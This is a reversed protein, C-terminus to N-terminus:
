GSGGQLSAAIRSRSIGFADRVQRQNLYFVAVVNLLMSVAVLEGRAWWIYIQIALAAGTVLMTATWGMRRMQLLAVAILLYAATLGAFLLIFASDASGELAGTRLGARELLDLLDRGSGPSLLVFATALGYFLANFLQIGALIVVPFPRRRAPMDPSAGPTSTAVAAASPRRSEDGSAPQPARDSEPREM